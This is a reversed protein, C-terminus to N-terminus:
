PVSQVHLVSAPVVERALDVLHRHHTFFLVQTKKSFETLTQFAARARDDDFHVLLDDAVFPLPEAATMYQEVAALRLALYLQDRTGDSMAEVGLRREDPTVGVLVLRDADDYDAQLHSFTGLTLAAFLESGRKLIPNQHQQRYREIFDRLVIEALRLRVYGEAHSRIKALEEEAEQSALAAADTIRQLDEREKLLEGRRSIDRDREEGLVRSRNEVGALAEAGQSSDQGATEAVVQELAAGGGDQVLQNEITRLEHILERRKAAREEVVEVEDLSGCRARTRIADLQRTADALEQRADDVATQLSALRDLKENRSVADRDAKQYRSAVEELAAEPPQSCLDPAVRELLQSLNQAFQETDEEMRAIRHLLDHARELREFAERVLNLSEEVEVPASEAAFGLPLIAECWEAAWEELRRAADRRDADAALATEGRNSVSQELASRRKADENAEEAVRDSHALLLALDAGPEPLPRGARQLGDVLAERCRRVREHLRDHRAEESRLADLTEVIRRRSDLWSRMEEPSRPEVGSSVWLSRWEKGLQEHAQRANNLAALQEALREEAVASRQLLSQYQAVREANARIGDALEDAATVSAEYAEPLPRDPDYQAAAGSVDERADVYTRRLLSWGADRRERAATLQDLTPVEGAATLDGIEARLEVLGQRREEVREQCRVCEQESEAFLLAFRQVTEPLPVAIRELQEATGRWGPLGAVEREIREKLHLLEVASEAQQTGLDGEARALRLADTLARTEPPAPTEALKRRANELQLRSQALVKEASELAARRETYTKVLQQIRKAQPRPLRLSEAEAVTLGPRVELLIRQVGERAADLEARRKPLDDAHKRVVALADRLEAICPAERLLKEPIDLAALDVAIRSMETETASITRELDRRRTTLKLREERATSPLDPTEALTDIEALIRARAAVRPLNRDLRELRRRTAELGSLERAHSAIRQDLSALESEIKHFDEGALTKSRARTRAEHYSSLAANLLPNSARPKFLSEAATGLEGLVRRVSKTGGAAEFLSEGLAGGARLLDEAGRRLREHGLGFMSEFLDRDVPGLFSQLVSDSFPEGGADLLTDKRGKRRTFTLARGDSAAIIAGIRLQSKPHVFDDSTREAIGFLLDAIARLATSKGAANPGLILELSRERASFDLTTRTFNGFALLDLRDIRM